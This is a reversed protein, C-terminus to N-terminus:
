QKWKRGLKPNCVYAEAVASVTISWVLSTAATGTLLFAAFWSWTPPRVVLNYAAFGITGALLSVLARSYAGLNRQRVDSLGNERNRNGPKSKADRGDRNAKYVNWLSVMGALAVATLYANTLSVALDQNSAWTQFLQYLIPALIAVFYQFLIEQRLKRVRRTASRPIACARDVRSWAALAFAPPAFLMGVTIYQVSASQWFDNM